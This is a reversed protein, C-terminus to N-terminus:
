KVPTLIADRSVRVSGKFVLKHVKGRIVGRSSIMTNDYDIKAEVCSTVFYWVGNINFINFIDTGNFVTRVYDSGIMTSILSHEAFIYDLESVGLNDDGPSSYLEGPLLSLNFSIDGIVAISLKDMEYKKYFKTALINVAQVTRGIENEASNNFIFARAYTNPIVMYEIPLFIDIEKNIPVIMTDKIDMFDAYIDDDNGKILFSSSGGVGLIDNKNSQLGGSMFLAVAIQWVVILPKVEGPFLHLVNVIIVVIISVAFAIYPIKVWRMINFKKRLFALFRTTGWTALVAILTSITDYNLTSEM